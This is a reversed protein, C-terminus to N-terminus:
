GTLTRVLRTYVRYTFVRNEYHVVIVVMLCMIMIRFIGEGRKRKKCRQGARNVVIISIVKKKKKEEKSQRRLIYQSGVPLM